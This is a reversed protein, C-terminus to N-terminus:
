DAATLSRPGGARCTPATASLGSFNVPLAKSYDGYFRKIWLRSPSAGSQPQWGWRRLLRDSIRHNTVHCLIADSRKIVAVQDLLAVALRLWALSTRHSTVIYTLALYSESGWPQAFYLRCADRHPGAHFWAGLTRSEWISVRKPWWRFYLSAEGDRNVRILGYRRRRLQDCRVNLFTEAPKWYNM